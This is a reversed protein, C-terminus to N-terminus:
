SPVFIKEQQAKGIQALLTEANHMAAQMRPARIERYGRAQEHIELAQAYCEYDQASEFFTFREVLRAYWRQFAKEDAHWMPLLRRLFGARAMIRLMWDRTLVDFEIAWPGIQFRPRNYHLYRVRDGRSPDLNYRKRDRDYKEPSTLLEAVWVEDKIALTRYLGQAV